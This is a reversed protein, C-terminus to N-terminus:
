PAAKPRAFTWPSTVASLESGGSTSGRAARRSPLPVSSLAALSVAPLYTGFGFRVSRATDMTDGGDAM